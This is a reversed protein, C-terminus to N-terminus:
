KTTQDTQKPFILKTVHKFSYKLIFTFPRGTQELPLQFLIKAM